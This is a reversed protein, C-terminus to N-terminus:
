ATQPPASFLGRPLGGSKESPPRGRVGMKEDARQRGTRADRMESVGRKGREWETDSCFGLPSGERLCQEDEEREQGM